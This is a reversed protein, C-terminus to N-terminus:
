SSVGVELLYFIAQTFYLCRNYPKTTENQEEVKQLRPILLEDAAHVFM